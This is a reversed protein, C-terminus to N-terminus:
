VDNKEKERSALIAEAFIIDEPYTIKINDRGCDVLRVEFGYKEALSADDTGVYGDKEATFAAARYVNAYFIQPTAAAVLHSRDLTSVVKDLSSKEKITDTVASAAIACSKSFRAEKLVASVTEPKILCRAGDHFAVYNAKESIGAFGRVSSQQRTEGGHVARSFKSIGNRECIARYLEEEGSRCVIVIENVDPCNEFALLTHLIVPKGNIETFQKPKDSGFRSGSGGALIVASLFVKDAGLAEFVKNLM